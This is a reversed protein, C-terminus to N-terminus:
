NSRRPRKLVDHNCHTLLVIEGGDWYWTVRNKLDVYAEFIKPNRTGQIPHTQLGPIRPNKGLKHVCRSIAGALNPEKRDLAKVFEDPIRLDPM